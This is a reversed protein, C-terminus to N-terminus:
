GRNIALSTLCQRRSKGARCSNSCVRSSSDTFDEISMLLAARKLPRREPLVRKKRECPMSFISRNAVELDNCTGTLLHATWRIECFSCSSSRQITDASGKRQQRTTFTVPLAIVPTLPHLSPQITDTYSSTISVPFLCPTTM